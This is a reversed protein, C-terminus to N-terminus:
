CSNSIGDWYIGCQKAWECKERRGGNGKYKSDEFSQFQCSGNGTNGLTQNVKCSNKGVVDWYDPCESTEPPWLTKQKSHYITIGFAILTIILIILAITIVTRNFGAM